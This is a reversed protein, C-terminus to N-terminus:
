PLDSRVLRACTRRGRRRVPAEGAERLERRREQEAKNDRNKPHTMGKAKHAPTFVAKALDLLVTTPKVSKGEDHQVAVRQMRKPVAEGIWQVKYSEGSGEHLLTVTLYAQGKRNKGFQSSGKPHFSFTEGEKTEIHAFNKRADQAIRCTHRLSEPPGAESTLGNQIAQQQWRPLADQGEIMFQVKGTFKPNSM